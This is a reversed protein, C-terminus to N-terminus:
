SEEEKWKVAKVLLYDNVKYVGAEEDEKFEGYRIVGEPGSDVCVPAEGEELRDLCYDCVSTKLPINEPIITGFPCAAACSYCNSCRLVYRKVVEDEQKELADQPCAEVCTGLECHRCILFFTAKEILDIVGKNDPHDIYSCEITEPDVARLAELDILIRNM